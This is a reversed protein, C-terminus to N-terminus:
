YVVREKLKLLQNQILSFDNEVFDLTIAAIGRYFDTRALRRMKLCIDPLWSRLHNQIFDAERGLLKVAKDELGTEWAKAERRCLSGLLQLEVGINDPLELSACIVDTSARANLSKMTVTTEEWMLDSTGDTNKKCSEEPTMNLSCSVTFLNHYDLIVKKMHITNSRLREIYYALRRINIAESFIKPLSTVVDNSLLRGFSADEPSRLYFEALFGYLNHRAFATESLEKHNLASTAM